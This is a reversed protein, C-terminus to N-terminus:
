IQTAVRMFGNVGAPKIESKLLSKSTGVISAIITFEVLPHLV